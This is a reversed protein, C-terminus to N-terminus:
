EGHRWRGPLWEAGRRGDRRPFPLAEWDVGDTSLFAGENVIFGGESCPGSLTTTLIVARGTSALGTPYERCITQPDANVSEVTVTGSEAWDLGDASLWSTVTEAFDWTVTIWDGGLAAAYFAGVPEDESRVWDGGDASAAIYPEFNAEDPHHTDGVVVFGEDGADLDFFGFPLEKVMVWTTGDDSFWLTAGDNDSGPYAVAAFGQPGVEVNVRMGARRDPPLGHPGDSSEWAVGGTPEVGSGDAMPESAVGLVVLSGGRVFIETLDVNDFEDAPTVDEWSWGDASLWVRGEHPPTPGVNPLPASFETGVAVFGGEFQTVDRAIAPGASDGFTTVQWGVPRSTATPEVSPPVSASTAIASESASSQCGALLLGLLALTALGSSRM